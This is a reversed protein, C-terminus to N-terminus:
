DTGFVLCFLAIFLTVLMIIAIKYKLKKNYKRYEDEILIIRGKM